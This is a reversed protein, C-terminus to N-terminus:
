VAPCQVHRLRWELNCRKLQLATDKAIPVFCSGDGRLYRPGAFFHHEEAYVWILFSGHGRTIMESTEVLHRRNQLSSMLLCCSWESLGLWSEDTVRVILKSPVRLVIVALHEVMAAHKIILSNHPPINICEVSEGRTYSCANMYWKSSSHWETPPLINSKYDVRVPFFCIDTSNMQGDPQCTQRLGFEERIVCSESRCELFDCIEAMAIPVRPHEDTRQSLQYLLRIVGRVKYWGVEETAWKVRYQVFLRLLDSVPLLAGDYGEEVEDTLFGRTKLWELTVQNYLTSPLSVGTTVESSQREKVARETSTSVETYVLLQEARDVEKHLVRSDNQLDLGHDLASLAEVYQGLEIHAAAVRAYGKYWGPDIAVCRQADHLSDSFRRLALRVASRIVYVTKDEPEDILLATLWADAETNKGNAWLWLAKKKSREYNM